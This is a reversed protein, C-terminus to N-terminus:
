ARGPSPPRDDGRATGRATRVARLHPIELGRQGAPPHELGPQPVSASRSAHQLRHGAPKGKTKLCFVAYSTCRHSSNLRTSKRDLGDVDPLQVDCLIVEFFTEGARDMAERGSACVTVTFGEQELYESLTDRILPEDDVILLRRSAM